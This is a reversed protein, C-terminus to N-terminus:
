LFIRNQFDFTHDQLGWCEIIKHNKRKLDNLFYKAGIFRPILNIQLDINKESFHFSAVYYEYNENAKRVKTVMQYKGKTLPLMCACTMYLGRYSPFLDQIVCSTEIQNFFNKVRKRHLYFHNTNLEYCVFEPFLRVIMFYKKGYQFPYWNKEIPGMEMITLIKILEIERHVVDIRVICSRVLRPTFTVLVNAVGYIKGNISHQFVKIDEIVCYDKAVDKRVISSYKHVGVKFHCCQKENIARYSSDMEGMYYSVKSDRWNRVNTEERVLYYIKKEHFFISPNFQHVPTTANNLVISKSPKLNGDHHFTENTNSQPLGFHEKPNEDFPYAGHLVSYVRTNM